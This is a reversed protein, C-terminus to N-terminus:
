AVPREKGWKNMVGIFSTPHSVRMVTAYQRREGPRLKIVRKYPPQPIPVRGYEQDRLAREAGRKAGERILERAKAPHLHRASAVHHAYQEQNLDAGTGGRLGWKVAVTEIGPVLAQAEKTFAEDGSGFIARVGLEGACLALEGFEGISLGNVSEDIYELSQTHCLHGYPTCAKAHQSVWAVADFSADLGLPWVPDPWGRQIEVRPDLDKVNIGGPGHADSVVIQTAGGAFLGEVAANVEATLLERGVPYHFRGPGTYEWNQIGAVGEMDTMLYIKM